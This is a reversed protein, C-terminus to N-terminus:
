ATGPKSRQNPTRGCTVAPSLACITASRPVRRHDYEAKRARDSHTLRCRCFHEDVLTNRQMIGVFGNVPKIRPLGRRQNFSGKRSGDDVTDDVAFPKGGGYKVILLLEAAEAFDNVWQHTGFLLDEDIM